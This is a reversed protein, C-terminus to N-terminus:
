SCDPGNGEHANGIEIAIEPNYKNTITAQWLTNQFANVRTGEKGTVEM